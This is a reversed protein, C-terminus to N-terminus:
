LVSSCILLPTLPIRSCWLVSLPRDNTVAQIQNALQIAQNVQCQYMNRPSQNFDSFPTMSAVVSLMITPTLESHTTENPRYDEPTLAIEM